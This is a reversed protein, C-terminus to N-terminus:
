PNNGELDDVGAQAFERVLAALAAQDESPVPEPIPQPNACTTCPSAKKPPRGRRKGPTSAPASPRPASSTKTPAAPSKTPKAASRPTKPSPYRTPLGDPLTYPATLVLQEVRSRLTAAKEAYKAVEREAAALMRATKRDEKGQGQARLLDGMFQQRQSEFHEQQRAAVEAQMRAKPLAGAERLDELGFVEGLAAGKPPLAARRPLDVQSAPSPVISIGDCSCTSAAAKPANQGLRWQKVLYPRLQKITDRDLSAGPFARNLYAIVDAFFQVPPDIGIRSKWEKM